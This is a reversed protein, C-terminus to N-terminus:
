FSWHDALKARQQPTLVDAADALGQVLRKSVDDALAIQEARLAELAARDTQPQRLLQVARASAAHMKEHVPLLDKTMATAITTLKQKQEATADIAWALHDVMHAAHEQAEAPDIPGRMGHHGWGGHAFGPGMGHGFATTALGGGVAGVLATALLAAFGFGRRRPANTEDSM